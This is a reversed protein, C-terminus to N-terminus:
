ASKSEALPILKPIPVQVGVVGGHLRQLEDFRHELFGYLARPAGAIEALPKNPLRSAALRAPILLIPNRIAHQSTVAAIFGARPARVRCCARNSQGGSPRYDAGGEAALSQRPRAFPQDRAAGPRRWFM